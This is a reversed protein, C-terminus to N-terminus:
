NYQLLPLFLPFSVLDYNNSRFFLWQCVDVWQEGYFVCILETNPELTQFYDQNHFFNYPYQYNISLMLPYRWWRNWHWRFRSSNKATWTKWVERIVKKATWTFKWCSCSEESTEHYRKDIPVRLILLFNGSFKWVKYPKKRAEDERNDM